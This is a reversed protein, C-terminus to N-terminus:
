KLSKLYEKARLSGQAAARRFWAIAEDRDKEVGDGRAYM